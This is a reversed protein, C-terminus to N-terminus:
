KLNNEVPSYYFVVDETQYGKTDSSKHLLKYSYNGLENIPSDFLYRYLLGGQMGMVQVSPVNVDYSSFDEGILIQDNGAQQERRVINGLVDRHMGYVAVDTWTEGNSSLSQKEEKLKGEADYAYEWKYDKEWNGDKEIYQSDKIMRGQVDYEYETKRRQVGIEDNYTWRTTLALLHNSTYENEKEVVLSWRGKEYYYYSTKICLGSDGEYEYEEKNFPKWEDEKAFSLSLLFCRGKDDYEADMKYWKRWQGSRYFYSEFRNNRGDTDYKYEKWARPMWEQEYKYEMVQSIKGDNDYALVSKEKGRLSNTCIISDLREGSSSGSQAVANLYIACMIFLSFYIRRM